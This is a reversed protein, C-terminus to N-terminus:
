QPYSERRWEDFVDMAGRDWFLLHERDLHAVVQKVAQSTEPELNIVLLCTTRTFATYLLEPTSVGPLRHAEDASRWLVIPRELGKIRAMSEARATVRATPCRETVLRTLQEAAEDPAEAWTISLGDSTRLLSGFRDILTSLVEALDELSDVSTIVPRVGLLSNKVSQPTAIVEAPVEASMDGGSSGRVSKQQEQIQKALPRVADAVWIPLRYSGLLPRVNWVRYEESDRRSLRRGWPPDFSAGTHMAQTSDAAVVVGRPDTVLSPLIETFEIPLFDQAEDIFVRDFIHSPEGGDRLERLVGIRADVFLRINKRDGLMLSWLMQRDRETLRPTRGRGRRVVALYDDESLAGLGYVVRRLESVLFRPTLWSQEELWLRRAGSRDQKAWYGILGSIAKDSESSISPSGIGFLRTPVKDWNLLRIRTAHGQAQMLLVELDEEDGELATTLSNLVPSRRVAEQFWETLQALLQKNFTTVLTSTMRRARVDQELTRVLREILVRSKGSGAVGIIATLRDDPEVAKEQAEDLIISPSSTVGLDDYPLRSLHIVTSEPSEHWTPARNATRQLVAPALRPRIQNRLERLQEIQGEWYPRPVTRDQDIRWPQHDTVLSTVLASTVVTKNPASIVAAGIARHFELVRFLGEAVSSVRQSDSHDLLYSALVFPETLGRVPETWGAAHTHILVSPPLAAANWMKLGTNLMIPSSDVAHITVSRSEGGAALRAREIASVALWSAGTGSGLDLIDLDGQHETLVPFLARAADNVRRAQYWVAYHAGISPLDYHCDSGEGLRLLQGIAESHEFDSLEDIKLQAWAESIGRVLTSQIWEKYEGSRLLSDVTVSNM